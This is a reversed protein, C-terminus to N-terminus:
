RVFKDDDILILISFTAIFLESWFQIIEFGRM